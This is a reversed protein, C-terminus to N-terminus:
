HRTHRGEKQLLIALWSSSISLAGTPPPPGGTAGGGAGCGCCAAGRRSATQKGGCRSGPRGPSHAAGCCRAGRPRRQGSQRWNCGGLRGASARGIDPHHQLPLCVSRLCHGLGVALISGFAPCNSASARVQLQGMLREGAAKYRGLRVHLEVTLGSRRSSDDSDILNAGNSSSSNATSGVGSIRELTIFRPPLGAAEAIAGRLLQRTQFSFAALTAQAYLRISDYCM